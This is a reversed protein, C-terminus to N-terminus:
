HKRWHNLPCHIFLWTKQRWNVGFIIKILSSQVQTLIDGICVDWCAISHSTIMSIVLCRDLSPVWIFAFQSSIFIEFPPVPADTQLVICIVCYQDFCRWCSRWCLSNIALQLGQSPSVFYRRLSCFYCSKHELINNRIIIQQREIFVFVNM